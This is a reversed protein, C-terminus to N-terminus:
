VISNKWLLRNSKFTKTYNLSWGTKGNIQAAGLRWNQVSLGETWLCTYHKLTHRVGKIRRPSPSQSLCAVECWCRVRCLWKLSFQSLVLTECKDTKNPSWGLLQTDTNLHIQALGNTHTHSHKHTGVSWQRYWDTHLTRIAELKWHIGIDLINM